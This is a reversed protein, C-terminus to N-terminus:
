EQAPAPEAPRAKEVALRFLARSVLAAEIVLAVAFGYRLVALVIEM